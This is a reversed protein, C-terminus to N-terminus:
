ILHKKLWVTNSNKRIKGCIFAIVPCHLKGSNSKADLFWGFFYILIELDSMQTLITCCLVESWYRVDPVTHVVEMWFNLLFLSKFVKGFVEVM